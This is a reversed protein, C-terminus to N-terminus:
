QTSTRGLATSLSVTGNTQAIKQSVGASMSTSNSDGSLQVTTGDPLFVNRGTGNAITRSTEASLPPDFDGKSIELAEKATDVSYNQIQLDFNKKMARSMCDELSFPAEAAPAPETQARLASIAALSLAAATARVFFRSMVSPFPRLQLSFVAPPRFNSNKSSVP